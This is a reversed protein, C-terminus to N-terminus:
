IIVKVILINVLLPCLLRERGSLGLVPEEDTLFLFDFFGLFSDDIPLSGGDDLSVSSSLSRTTVELPVVLLSVGLFDFFVVISDDIPVFGGDDFSVSSFLSRTRGESPVVLSGVELFNFRVFPMVEDLLFVM